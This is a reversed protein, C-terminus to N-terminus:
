SRGGDDALDIPTPADGFAATAARAEVVRFRELDEPTDLDRLVAEDGVEHERVPIGLRAIVERASEGARAERLAAALGSPFAAPHGREGAATLVHVAEPERGAALVLQHILAAQVPPQDVPAILAFACGSELALALGVAISSVQGREPQPNVVAAAGCLAAERGIATAGPAVVAAVPHLGAQLLAECSARVFTRGDRRTLLAKPTGMRRSAGAALVVGAGRVPERREM